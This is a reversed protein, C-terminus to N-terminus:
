IPNPQCIALCSCSHTCCMLEPSTGHGFCNLIYSLGSLGGCCRGDQKFLLICGMPKYTQGLSGPDWEPTGKPPDSKLSNWKQTESQPRCNFPCYCSLKETHKKMLRFRITGLTVFLINVFINLNERHYKCFYQQGGPLSVRFDLFCNKTSGM